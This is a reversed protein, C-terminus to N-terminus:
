WINKDRIGYEITQAILGVEIGIGITAIIQLINCITDTNM